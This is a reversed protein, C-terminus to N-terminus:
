STLFSFASENSAPMSDRVRFGEPASRHLPTARRGQGSAAQQRAHEHGQSGSSAALFLTVIPPSPPQSGWVRPESSDSRSRLKVRLPEPPIHLPIEGLSRCPLSRPDACRA